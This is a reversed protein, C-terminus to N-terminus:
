QYAIDLAHSATLTGLADDDSSEVLALAEEVTQL